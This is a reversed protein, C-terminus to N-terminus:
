KHKTLYKGNCIECINQKFLIDYHKQRYESDTKKKYKKRKETNFVANNSNLNLIDNEYKKIYKNELEFLEQKNQFKIEELLIIKIDNWNFNNSIIHNYFKTKNIKYTSKHNRLREELTKKTSGIYFYNDPCIIKYIKGTIM